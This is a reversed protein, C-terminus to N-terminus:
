DRPIQRIRDGLDQVGRALEEFTARRNVTTENALTELRAQITDLRRHLTMELERIRAELLAIRADYARRADGFLLERIQQMKEDTADPSVHGPRPDPWLETRIPANMTTSM